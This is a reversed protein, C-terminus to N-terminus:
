KPKYKDLGYLKWKRKVPRVYDKWYDRMNKAIKWYEIDPIGQLMDSIDYILDTEGNEIAKLLIDLSKCIFGEIKWHIKNTDLPFYNLMCSDMHVQPVKIKILDFLTKCNHNAITDKLAVTINYLDEDTTNNRYYVMVEKISYLLIKDM